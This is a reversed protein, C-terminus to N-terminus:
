CRQQVRSTAGGKDRKRLCPRPNVNFRRPFEPRMPSGCLGKGM